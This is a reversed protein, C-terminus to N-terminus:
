AGQSKTRPKPTRFLESVSPCQDLGIGNVNFRHPPSYGAFIRNEEILVFVCPDRVQSAEDACRDKAYHPPLELEVLFDRSTAERLLAAAVLHTTEAELALPLLFPRAIYVIEAHMKLTDKGFAEGELGWLQRPDTISAAANAKSVQYLRLRTDLPQNDADLNMRKGPQVYVKLSWSREELKKCPASADPHKSSSGKCAVLSLIAFGCFCLIASARLQRLCSPLYRSLPGQNLDFDM